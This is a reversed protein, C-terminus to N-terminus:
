YHIFVQFPLTLARELHIRERFFFGQKSVLVTPDRIQNNTIKKELKALM